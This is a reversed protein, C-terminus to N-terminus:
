GSCIKGAIMAIIMSGLSALLSVQVRKGDTAESPGKGIFSAWLTSSKLVTWAVMAIATGSMNTAIAVVFFAREVIGTLIGNETVVSKWGKIDRDVGAIKALTLYWLYTLLSGVLTSIVVLGMLWRYLVEDM